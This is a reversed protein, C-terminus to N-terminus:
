PILPLYVAYPLTQTALLTIDDVYMATVGDSGDNYTGVHLRVTQGEYASLDFNLETWDDGDLLQWWLIHQAGNGDLLLVYQADGADAQEPAGAALAEPSAQEAETSIPYIFLRLPIAGPGPPLAIEQYASSYALRNTEGPVVGLLMSRAGSHTQTSSTRATVETIPLTWGDGAEFHGNIVQNWRESAYIWVGKVTAVAVRQPTIVDIDNSGVGNLLGEEPVLAALAWSAGGDQSRYLWGADSLTYAVNDTDFESSLGVAVFDRTVPLGTHSPTWNTGGDNSRYVASRAELETTWSIVALLTDDGTSGPSVALDRVYPAEPLGSGPQWNASGPNLRYVGGNGGAYLRDTTGWALHQAVGSPNIPWAGRPEWTGADGGETSCFVGANAEAACVTGDNAFDPSFIVDQISGANYVSQWSAGGDTSRYVAGAISVGSNWAALLTEDQSYDPSIAGANVAYYSDGGQLGMPRWSWGHNSSGYVGHNTTGALLLGAEPQWALGRSELSGLGSPSTCHNLETGDMVSVGQATGALLVAHAPWQPSLALTRVDSLLCSTIAEWSAGANRSRWLGGPGGAFLTQDSAFQPSVALATLPMATARSTWNQGGNTSEWLANGGVAYVHSPSAAGLSTMAASMVHQWTLGANTSRYLAAGSTAIVTQADTFILDANANVTTTDLIDWSDGGDDSRYLAGWAGGALVVRSSAFDPALAVTSVGPPGDPTVKAWLDGGDTSRLLGGWTAAFVTDDGGFHPSFAYDHVASAYPLETVGGMALEWNRGADRSRFLGLGTETSRFSTLWEGAFALGDAAFHPSVALADAKGGRPGFRYWRGPEPAYGGDAGRASPVATIFFVVLILTVVVLLSRRM